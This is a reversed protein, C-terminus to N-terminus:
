RKKGKKEQKSVWKKMERITDYASDDIVVFKDIMMHKLIQKGKEDEHAKLLVNKIQRKLEPDLGPPVVVPPIGYPPSKKIIKTKSTFEPNTRNAYEWILSDVAAGDVLKQAVREISKDHKHTYIYKSFFSDPTEGMKALMYTPVLKGTNSLPDTFAFVKGRLEEFSKVPSDVPVILYSYYVTEGYAQPAVLLELGFADHGDVYPGSCVFAADLHGLKLMDNIEAYTEKDIFEVPKGLKEGIYDLLQRYYAFGEKPTIMGGVAIRIPQEQLTEKPKIPEGKELRIEKTEEKRACGTLDVILLSAVLSVILLKALNRLM